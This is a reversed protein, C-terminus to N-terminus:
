LSAIDGKLYQGVRKLNDFARDYHPDGDKATSWLFAHRLSEELAEYRLKMRDCLFQLDERDQPRFSKM